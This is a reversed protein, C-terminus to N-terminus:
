PRGEELLWAKALALDRQQTIKINSVDGAILRPQFGALEMAAADDTVAGGRDRAARLADWLLQFRFMQPTQALWLPKRDVTATVRNLRDARKVTASVRCALLGGVPDEHLAERLRQLDQLRVCPRAADHVLVWDRPEAWIALSELGALVSDAREAGGNCRAIRSDGAVPLQSFRHDEPHLAVMVKELRNWALLRTLTQELVTQELLPLYQKPCGSGMRSGLGAAPVLGWYRAETM